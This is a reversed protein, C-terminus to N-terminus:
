FNMTTFIFDPYNEVTIMKLLTVKGNDKNQRESIRVLHKDSKRLGYETDKLMEKVNRM